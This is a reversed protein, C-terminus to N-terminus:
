AIIKVNCGNLEFELYEKINLMAKGKWEGGDAEFLAAKPGDQMRFVFKSEPQEVETFTRYPRLVVPNPVTVDSVRAIGVKATVVQSIGDDCAQRVNEEKINGIVKLVAETDDNGIFCSQLLINFKEVDHFIDFPIKPILAFCNLYYDRNVDTKLGSCAYVMTPSAVHILLKESAHKDISSKIYDVLGTLTSIEIASPVPQKVHTINCTTYKQGNIEAIENKGLGILYQLAEKIM